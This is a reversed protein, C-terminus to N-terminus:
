TETEALLRKCVRRLAFSDEKVVERVIKKDDLLDLGTYQLAEGENRLAAKVVQKDLKSGTRLGSRSVMRTCILASFKRIKESSRCQM